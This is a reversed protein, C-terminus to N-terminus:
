ITSRIFSSLFTDIAALYCSTCSDSLFLWDYIDTILSIIEIVSGMLSHKDYIQMLTFLIARYEVFCSM